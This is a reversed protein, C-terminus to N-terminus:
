KRQVEEQQQEIDIADSYSPPEEYSPPPSPTPLRPSEDRMRLTEMITQLTVVFGLWYVSFLGVGLSTLLGLLFPLASLDLTSLYIAYVVIFLIYLIKMVMSLLIYIVLLKPKDMVVGIIMLFVSITSTSVLILLITFVIWHLRLVIIIIVVIICSIITVAGQIPCLIKLLKTVKVLSNEVNRRRLQFCLWFWIPTVTLWFVGIGIIFNCSLIDNTFCQIRELAYIISIFSVLGGVLSSIMGTWSSMSIFSKMKFGFGYKSLKLDRLDIIFELDLNEVQFSM